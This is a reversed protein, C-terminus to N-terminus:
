ARGEAARHAPGVVVDFETAKENIVGGFKPPLPPLQQGTITTTAGPAGPVGTVQQALASVSLALLTAASALASRHIKVM